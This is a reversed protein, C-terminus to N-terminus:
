PKARQVVFYLGLGLLLTSTGALSVAPREIVMGVVMWL